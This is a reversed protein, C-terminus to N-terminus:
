AWLSGVSAMRLITGPKSSASSNWRLAVGIPRLTVKASTLSATAKRVDGAEDKMVACSNTSSPPM